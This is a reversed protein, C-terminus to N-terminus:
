RPKPFNRSAFAARCTPAARQASRARRLAADGRSRVCSRSSSMILRQAWGRARCEVNFTSRQANFTKQAHIWGRFSGGRETIAHGRFPFRV